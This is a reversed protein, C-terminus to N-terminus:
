KIIVISKLCKDFGLKKLHDLALLFNFKENFSEKVREGRLSNQCSTIQLVASSVLGVPYSFEPLDRRFKVVSDPNYHIQWCENGNIVYNVSSKQSPVVVCNEIEAYNFLLPCSRHTFTITRIRWKLIFICTDCKFEDACSQIISM